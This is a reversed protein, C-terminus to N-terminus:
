LTAIIGIIAVVVLVGLIIFPYIPRGGERRPRAVDRDPGVPDSAM